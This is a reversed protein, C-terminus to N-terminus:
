QLVFGDRVDDECNEILAVVLTRSGFDKILPLAWPSFEPFEPFSLAVTLSIAPVFAPFSLSSWAVTSHSSLSPPHHQTLLMLIESWPDVDRCSIRQPPERVRERHFRLYDHGARKTAVTANEVSVSDGPLSVLVIPVSSASCTGISM